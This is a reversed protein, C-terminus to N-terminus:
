KDPAKAVNPLVLVTVAQDLALYRRATAQLAAPTMADLRSKAQLYRGIRDPRSGAREALALWGGNTKLANDIRERLPARARALVDPDVPREALSRVTGEISARTAAVDAVNVSANITFTGWDRWVRSLSSQVSPSYSTGLAERVTDTVEIGAVEQLLELTLAAVPDRDDTTPWVM